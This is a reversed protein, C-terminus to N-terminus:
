PLTRWVTAELLTLALGLGLAALGFELSFDFYRRYQFSEIRTRQLRDIDALAASLDDANDATFARGGTLEASARLIARGASRQEEDSRGGCDIAYLPIGLNAALQAAQRPTLPADAGTGTANHEGDSLLVIAKRGAASSELRLLAEAVADGINTGADVGTRPELDSILKLLVTHNLTPPCDTKPTAAFSVLALADNGRRAVFAEFAAKAAALRTTTTGSAAFDPVAMSGSVDVVLAIAIGESPLRTAADPTRLGAVALALLLVILGRGLAGGWVAGRRASPLASARPLILAPRRQRRQRWVVLPTLALLLLAEPHAFSLM